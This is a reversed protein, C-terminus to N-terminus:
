SSSQPLIYPTNACNHCLALLSWLCAARLPLLCGLGLLQAEQAGSGCAALCCVARWGVVASVGWM